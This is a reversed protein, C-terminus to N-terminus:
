EAAQRSPPTPTDNEIKEKIKEVVLRKFKRIEMKNALYWFDRNILKREKPDDIPSFSILALTTMTTDSDPRIWTHVIEETDRYYFNIYFWYSRRGIVLSTDGPPQLEPYKTKIQKIIEVLEQESVPLDWYEVFPYSGAFGGIERRIFEECGWFFLFSCLLGISIKKKTKTM